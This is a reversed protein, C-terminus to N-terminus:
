MYMQMFGKSTNISSGSLCRFFYKKCFCMNNKLLYSWTQQHKVLNQNHRQFWDYCFRSREKDASCNKKNFLIFIDGYLIVLVTLGADCIVVLKSTERELTTMKYQYSDQLVGSMLPVTWFDSM